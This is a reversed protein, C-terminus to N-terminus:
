IDGKLQLQVCVRIYARTSICLVSCHLYLLQCEAPLMGDKLFRLRVVLDQQLTATMSAWYQQEKRAENHMRVLQVCMRMHTSVYAMRVYPHSCLNWELENRARKLAVTRM